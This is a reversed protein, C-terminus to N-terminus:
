VSWLTKWLLVIVHLLERDERIGRHHLDRARQEINDILLVAEFENSDVVLGMSHIVPITTTNRRFWTLAIGFLLCYKRSVVGTSMSSNPDM